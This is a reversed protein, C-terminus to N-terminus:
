SNASTGYTATWAETATDFGDAQVAYAIIEITAGGFNSVNANDGITFTEFVVVDDGANAKTGNAWIGNTEDICTWGKATMQAEITSDDAEISEIGNTLKVFLWCEESNAGVHITPDKIYEHGPILKYENATVPTNGDKEGYVDVDTEDMTITVNGVSMTNTVPGTEAKLYALTGMVSGVVLLAACLVLAMAKYMKKM